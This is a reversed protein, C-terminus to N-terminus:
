ASLQLVEVRPAQKYICTHLATLPSHYQGVGGQRCGEPPPSMPQNSSLDALAAYLSDDGALDGGGSPHCTTVPHTQWRLWWALRVSGLECYFDLSM